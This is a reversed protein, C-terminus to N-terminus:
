GCWWWASGKAAWEREHALKWKAHMHTGSAKLSKWFSM